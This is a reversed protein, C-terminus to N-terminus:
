PSLRNKQWYRNIKKYRIRDHIRNKGGQWFEYEIPNIIYGGWYSPREIKRNLYKNKLDNFRQILFQKSEIISSQNESVLAGIKSGLPRSDFYKTSLDDSIKRATGKIMIQRESNEWFFSISVKNIKDISMAKNSNYNTFFVFGDSSYYKLLVIRSNPFGSSDITSLTMANIESFSNKKSEFKFWNDFLFFPDKPLDKEDLTNKSYSKRLNSIDRLM